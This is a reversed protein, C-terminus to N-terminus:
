RKAAWWCAWYATFGIIQMAFIWLAGAVFSPDVVNPRSAILAIMRDFFPYLPPITMALTALGAGIVGGWLWATKQGDRAVEGIDRWYSRIWVACLAFFLLFLFGLIVPAFYPAGIVFAAAAVLSALGVLRRTNRTQITLM